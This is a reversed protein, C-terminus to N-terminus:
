QLHPSLLREIPRTLLARDIQDRLRRLTAEPMVVIVGEYLRGSRASCHVVRFFGDPDAEVVVHNASVEGHSHLEIRAEVPEAVRLRM